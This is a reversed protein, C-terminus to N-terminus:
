RHGHHLVKLAEIEDDELLAENHKGLGYHVGAFVFSAMVTFLIQLQLNRLEGGFNMSLLSVLAAVMFWDDVHFSKIVFIRVFFRLLATVWVLALLGATLGVLQPGRDESLDM